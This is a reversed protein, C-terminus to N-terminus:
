EIIKFSKRVQEKPLADFHWWESALQSFGVETMVSRLIKRNEVQEKKLHGNKLLKEELIPESAPSFDDFETGMDLARGASDCLSLDVALGYNHISGKAPDAVYKERDSRTVSDWLAKQVSRPRLCDFILFKLDPRRKELLKISEALMDAAKKHLFCRNLPGYLNKKLFNNESAYRLDLKVGAWQSIDVFEPNTELAKISEAVDPVNELAMVKWTSFSFACTMLGAGILFKRGM